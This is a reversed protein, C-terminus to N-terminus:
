AGDERVRRLCEDVSYGLGQRTAYRVINEVDRELLEGARPHDTLVGQAMDIIIPELTEPDILVNYESLDGHVLKARHYLLSVYELLTEVVGKAEQETLPVDKLQPHPVEDKGLFEMTLINQYCDYVEPVRVGVRAASQLNKYEKRAWAFIIHRKDRKIGAFRRDALIYDKMANFNSTTIMYIKVAMDRGDRRAFFVNAEKGANIVGGLADLKGRASLRYLGMLTQTDLVESEVKLADSDKRRIRLEDLVRDMRVMRDKSLGDRKGRM